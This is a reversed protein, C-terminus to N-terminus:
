RRWRVIEAIEARVDDVPGATATFEAWLVVEAPGISSSRYSPALRDIGDEGGADSALDMWGYRRLSGAIDSGHGGANMRLAGGVSGPAGVAWELGRAGAEVARRALVPLGLAAGARLVLGGPGAGELLEVAFGLFESPDA